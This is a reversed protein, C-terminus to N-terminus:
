RLESRVWCLPWIMTLGVVTILISAALFPLASFYRREMVLVLVVPLSLIALGNTIGLRWAWKEGALVGSACYWTSLSICVLLIGVVAHNLLFPSWVFQFDSASLIRLMVNRLVPIVLMHIVAVVFLLVAEVYLIRACILRKRM